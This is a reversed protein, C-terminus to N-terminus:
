RTTKKTASHKAADISKGAWRMMEDPDDLVEAPAEHYSMTAMKGNREYKFPELSREEFDTRNTDGTKLYLIDDAVLAFMINGHEPSNFYLGHGGFMARVSIQGINASEGTQLLELLYEIFENRHAM